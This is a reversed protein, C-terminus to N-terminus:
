IQMEMTTTLDLQVANTVTPSFTFVLKENQVNCTQLEMAFRANQQAHNAPFVMEEM